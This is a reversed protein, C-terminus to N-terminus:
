TKKKMEPREVQLSRAMKAMKYITVLMELIVVKGEEVLGGL